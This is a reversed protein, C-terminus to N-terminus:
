FKLGGERAGDAVAKVRGHYKRGRRDFCVEKVGMAIAKAAIEKGVLAAAQKGSASGVLAERVGAQRTSAAALTRGATDDIIQAYIHALSRVVALRPREPTGSVRKRVHLKRRRLRGTKDKRTKM